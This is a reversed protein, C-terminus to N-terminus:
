VIASCCGVMVSARGFSRTLLQKPSDKVFFRSAKIALVFPLSSSMSPRRIFLPPYVIFAGRLDIPSLTLHHCLPCDKTLERFAV